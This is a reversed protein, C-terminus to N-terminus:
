SEKYRYVINIKHLYEFICAVQAAYFQTTSPSFPDGSHLYRFLEGGRVFELFM